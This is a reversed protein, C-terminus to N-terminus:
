VVNGIKAFKLGQENRWRYVTMRSVNAYQVVEEVTLWKDEVTAVQEVVAPTGDVLRKALAFVADRDNARVADALEQMVTEDDHSPHDGGPPVSALGTKSAKTHLRVPALATTTPQTM